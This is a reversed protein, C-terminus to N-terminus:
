RTELEGEDPLESSDPTGPMEGEEPGMKKDFRSADEFFQVPGM